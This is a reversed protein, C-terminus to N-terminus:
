RDEYFRPGLLVELAVVAPALTLLLFWWSGAPDGPGVERFLIQADFLLVPISAIITAWACRKAGRGTRRTLAVIVLVVAAVWTLLLFVAGIALLRIGEFSALIPLPNTATWGAWATLTAASLIFLFLVARFILNITKM